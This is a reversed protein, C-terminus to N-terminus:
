EEGHIGERHLAADVAEDAFAQAFGWYVSENRVFFRPHPRGVHPLEHMVGLDCLRQLAELIRNAPVQGPLVAAVDPAKLPCNPAVGVAALAVPLVYKNGHLAQSRRCVADFDQARWAGM